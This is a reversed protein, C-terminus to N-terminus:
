EGVVEAAVWESPIEVVVHKVVEEEPLASPGPVINDSRNKFLSRLSGYSPVAWKFTTPLIPQPLPQFGMLNCAATIKPRIKLTGHKDVLMRSPSPLATAAARTVIVPLKAVLRVAVPDIATVEERPPIGANGLGLVSLRSLLDASLRELEEKDRTIVATDDQAEPGQPQLSPVRQQYDAVLGPGGAALLLPTLTFTPSPQVKATAVLDPSTLSAGMM